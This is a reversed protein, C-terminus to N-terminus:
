LKQIRDVGYIIGLASGCDWNVFVTGTDDVHTVTGREGPALKSYPDDMQVLEVRSGPLYLKKIREIMKQTPFSINNQM